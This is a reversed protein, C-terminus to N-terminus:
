VCRPPGPPGGRSADHLTTSVVLQRERPLRGQDHRHSHLFAHGRRQRGQRDLFTNGTKSTVSLTYADDGTPRLTVVFAGPTSKLSEEINELDTDTAVYNQNDTYWTEM